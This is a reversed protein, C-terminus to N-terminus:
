VVAKLSPRLNPAPGHSGRAIFTAEVLRSEVSKPSKSMLQILMDAVSIASDRIHQDFTSIGPSAYASIPVNDFGIVSLDDPVCVNMQNAVEVLKIALADTVCMIATPRPDLNLLQTSARAIEHDDFRSVVSVAANGPLQLGRKQLAKEVGLRRYHAFTLPESLTLLGFHRHGMDILMNTASAFAAEGDTDFWVHPRSENLVRGHVVFPVHQDILYSVREDRELARNVIVGDAQQGNVLHRMVDLESRSRTATAIALDRGNETLTESIGAIFEGLFADIFNSDRLPVVLGAFGSSGTVLMRGARSPVYGHKAAVERVRKQTAASVDSYGALARSVTTISLGLESSLEKLRPNRRGKGTM